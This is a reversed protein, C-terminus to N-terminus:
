TAAEHLVPNLHPLNTTQMLSVALAHATIHAQLYSLNPMNGPCAPITRPKENFQRWFTYDKRKKKKSM